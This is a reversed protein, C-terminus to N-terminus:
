TAGTATVERAETMRKSPPRKMVKAGRHRSGARGAYPCGIKNSLGLVCSLSM